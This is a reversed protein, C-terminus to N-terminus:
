CNWRREGGGNKPSYAKEKQSEVVRGKMGKREGGLNESRRLKELENQRPKIWSRAFSLAGRGKKAKEKGEGRCGSESIMAPKQLEQIGPFRKDCYTASHEETEKNTRKLAREVEVGQQASLPV